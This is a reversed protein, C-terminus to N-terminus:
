AKRGSELVRCCAQCLAETPDAHQILAHIGINRLHYDKNKVWEERSIKKKKLLINWEEDWYMEDIDNKLFELMDKESPASYTEDLLNCKVACQYDAYTGHKNFHLETKGQVWGSEKLRKAQELSTMPLRKKQEQTKRNGSGM